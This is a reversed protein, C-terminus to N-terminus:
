FVVLADHSDVHWALERFRSLVDGGNVEMFSGEPVFYPAQNKLDAELTGTKVGKAVYERVIGVM